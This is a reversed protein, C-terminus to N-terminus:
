RKWRLVYNEKDSYQDKVKEGEEIWNAKLLENVRGCIANIRIGLLISLQNRTYANPYQQKLFDLIKAKQGTFNSESTYYANLSTQRITHITHIMNIFGDKEKKREILIDTGIM